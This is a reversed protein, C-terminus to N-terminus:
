IKMASFDSQLTTFDFGNPAKATARDISEQSFMAFLQGGAGRAAYKAVATETVTGSMGWSDIIVGTADYATGVFCHGNGPDPDGAVDWVFDSASPFPTIWADPLEVGFVLNEFLWLAQKVETPNTADVSMWGVINNGCFGSTQVYNLATEEDCGQDTASDGPVYGGIASYMQVIQDDTFTVPALGSNGTLVGFVHACGAIVCDGLKDNLYINSLVSAAAPRYDCSVPPAPLSADAYDGFKIRPRPALPRKRGLRFTMGNSEITKVM